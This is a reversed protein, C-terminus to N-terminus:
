AAQEQQPEAPQPAEIGLNGDDTNSADPIAQEPETRRKGLGLKKALSSRQESYGLATLPHDQPLGWRTRYEHASMGHASALHRKLM